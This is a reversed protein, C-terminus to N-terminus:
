GSWQRLVPWCPKLAPISSSAMAPLVYRISVECTTPVASSIFKFDESRAGAMSRRRLEIVGDVLTHEASLPRVGTLFLMTCGMIAALAQLEHIFKKFERISAATEELASLGDLILLSAQHRQVERRLLDLV